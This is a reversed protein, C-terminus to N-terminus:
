SRRRRIAALGVLGGGLLALSMPEPVATPVGVTFGYWNEAVPNTWSLTTFTGFFQITGNGELGYVNNGIVTIPLGSYEASPGGSEFTPTQAFDFEGQIGGQGLSWIAIVPNTVASSFTLTDTIATPGGVEAVIGGSAPPPNGVTGGSFTSSPNWSPYGGINTQGFVEGNYTVALGGITGAASGPYGVSFSNWQTWGITAASAPMSVAVAGVLAAAAVSLRLYHKFDSM